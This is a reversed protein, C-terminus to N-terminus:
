AKKEKEVGAKQKIYSAEIDRPHAGLPVEFIVDDYTLYVNVELLRGIRVAEHFTKKADSKDDFKLELWAKDIM